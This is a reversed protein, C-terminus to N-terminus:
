GTIVDALQAAQGPLTDPLWRLLRLGQLALGSKHRTSPLASEYSFELVQTAEVQRVPGFRETTHERIWHHLALEDPAPLGHDPRAVPVLEGDQWVGLALVCYLSSRPGAGRQAYLLVGRLVKAEPKWKYGQQHPQHWDREIRRLILAKAEWQTCLRPLVSWSKLKQGPLLQVDPLQLALVLKRAQVLRKSLPLHTLDQGKQSLIDTVLLVVAPAKGTTELSKRQRAADLAEGNAATGVMRAVLHLPGHELMQQENLGPLSVPLLEGDATWLYCHNHDVILQVGLGPLHPVAMWGKAPGLRDPLTDLHLPKSLVIPPTISELREVIALLSPWSDSQPQVGQELALAWAHEPQGAFIALARALPPKRLPLKWGGLLLKNLVYREPQTLIAWSDVVPQRRDETALHALETLWQLWYHLPLQHQQPGTPVTLAITEALDGAAKHTDALLWLPLRAEDAAWARLTAPQVLRAQRYSGNLLAIAWLRDIEAPTDQLYRVVAEVQETPSRTHELEAVLLAFRQM